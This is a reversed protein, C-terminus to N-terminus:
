AIIIFFDKHRIIFFDKHRIIKNTKVVDIIVGILNVKVILVYSM